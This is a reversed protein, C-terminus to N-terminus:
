APRKRRMAGALGLLGTGLLLLSSPEPVPTVSGSQLVVLATSAEWASVSHTGNPNSCRFDLSCLDGGAYNVLPNSASTGPITLGLFSSNSSNDVDVGARGTGAPVNTVQTYSLGDGSYLIDAATAMGTATDITITGSMTTSDQFTGSVAFLIQDARATRPAMLAMLGVLLALAYKMAKM